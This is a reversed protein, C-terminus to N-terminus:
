AGMKISKIFKFFEQVKTPSEKLEISFEWTPERKKCEDIISEVFDKDKYYGRIEGNVKLIYVTETSKM